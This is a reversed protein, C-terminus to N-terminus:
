DLRKPNNEGGKPADEIISIIGCQKWFGSWHTALMLTDPNSADPVTLVIESDSAAYEDTEDTKANRLSVGEAFGGGADWHWAWSLGLDALVETVGSPMEGYNMEEFSFHGGGHTIYAIPDEEEWGAVGFDSVIDWLRAIDDRCLEGKVSLVCYTRDGM